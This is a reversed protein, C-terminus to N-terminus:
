SGSTILTDAEPFFRRILRERYVILRLKVCNIADDHSKARSSRRSQKSEDSRRCDLLNLNDKRFKIAESVDIARTMHVDNSKIRGDKINVELVTELSPGPDKVTVTITNVDIQVGNDAESYLYWSSDDCLKFSATRERRLSVYFKAWRIKKEIPDFLFTPEHALPICQIEVGYDRAIHKLGFDQLKSSMERALKKRFEQTEVERASTFPACCGDSTRLILNSPGEFSSGMVPFRLESTGAQKFEYTLKTYYGIFSQRFSSWVFVEPTSSFPVLIPLGKSEDILTYTQTPFGLNSPYNKSQADAGRCILLISFLVVGISVYPLSIIKSFIVFSTRLNEGQTDAEIGTMKKKTENPM